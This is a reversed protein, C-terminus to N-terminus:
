KDGTVKNELEKLEREKKNILRQINYEELGTCCGDKEKKLMRIYDKLLRIRWKRKEM